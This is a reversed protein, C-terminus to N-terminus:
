KCKLNASKLLLPWTCSTVKSEVLIRLGHMAISHCTHNDPNKCAHTLDLRQFKLTEWELPNCNIDKFLNWKSTNFCFFCLQAKSLLISLLLTFLCKEKKGALFTDVHVFTEEMKPKINLVTRSM